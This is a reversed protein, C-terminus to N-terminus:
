YIKFAYLTDGVAVLVHQKGDVTYTQPSNSINGVRIWSM